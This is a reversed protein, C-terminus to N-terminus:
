WLTSDPVMMYPLGLSLGCMSSVELGDGFKSCNQRKTRRLM